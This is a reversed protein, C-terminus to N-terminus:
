GMRGIRMMMMVMMMVMLLLVMMMLMLMLMLMMLMVAMVMVMVVVMVVTSAVVTPGREPGMLRRAMMSGLHHLGRRCGDRRHLSRIAKAQSRDPIDIPQRRHHGAELRADRRLRLRRGRGVRQRLNPRGRDSRRRGGGRAASSSRGDTVSARGRALRVVGVTVFGDRVCRADRVRRRGDDLREDIELRADADLLPVIAIRHQLRDVRAQAEAARVRGLRGVDLREVDRVSGGDVAAEDVRGRVRSRGHREVDRGGPRAGLARRRRHRRRVVGADQQVPRGHGPDQGGHGPVLVHEHRQLQQGVHGLVAVQPRVKLVRVEHGPELDALFEVQQVGVSASGGGGPGSADVLVLVVLRHLLIEQRVVKVDERQHLLERDPMVRVVHLVPGPDDHAVEAALVVVAAADSLTRVIPAALPLAVRSLEGLATPATPGLVAALLTLLARPHVM